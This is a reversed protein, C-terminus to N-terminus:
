EAALHRPPFVRMFRDEVGFEQQPAQAIIAKILDILRDGDFDLKHTRSVAPQDLWEIAMPIQFHRAVEILQEVPASAHLRYDTQQDLKQRLSEAHVLCSLGIVM